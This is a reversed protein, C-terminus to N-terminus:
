WGNDDAVMRRRGSMCWRGRVVLWWNGAGVVVSSSEPARLKTGAVWGSEGTWWGDDGDVM